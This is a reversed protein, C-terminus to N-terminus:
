PGLRRVVVDDFYQYAAPPMGPTGSNFNSWADVAFGGSLNQLVPTDDLVDVHWTMPEPDAEPWVKCQLRTDTPTEQTVRFRVRYRVGNQFNLAADFHVLVEQENGDVERWAGIGPLARFGEVFVAYGQGHTPTQQLYGGNQRVYFGLGQSAVDTFELTLEVEVNEEAAPVHLRALSYGSITPRFRARNGQVDATEVSGIATWPAPWPSGDALTFTESLVVDSPAGVCSPPYAASLPAALTVPCDTAFAAVCEVCVVVDALSAIPAACSSVAGPPTADPCTAAFGIAAPTLDDGGGSGPIGGITADCHKDAGGCAKCIATAAKAEAKAIAASAKGDGPVPCPGTADGREVAQWCKEMAKGRAAQLAATAKGIASQCRELPSAPPSALDLDDYALARLAEAGGDATCVLCTAVDSCDAIAAGCTAGAIGPCTGLDWGIPALAEDDGGAGCARDVGGCAKAIGSRVKLEAKTRTAITKEDLGCDTAPALAGTVVKGECRALAGLVARAYAADLKVIARRCKGPDAHAPPTLLALGLLPLALALRRRTPMPWPALLDLTPNAM